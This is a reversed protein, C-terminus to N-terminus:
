EYGSDEWWAVIESVDDFGEVAFTLYRGHVVDIDAFRMRGDNDTLTGSTFNPSESGLDHEGVKMTATTPTADTEVKYVSIYEESEAEALNIVARTHLKSDITTGDDDSGGEQKVVGSGSGFLTRPTDLTRFQHFGCYADYDAEVWHDFQWNYILAKNPEDTASSNPYLIVAEQNEWDTYCYVHDVLSRKLENYFYDDIRQTGISQTGGGSFFHIGTNSVFLHGGRIQTVAKPAILGVNDGFRPIYFAPNGTDQLTTVYDKQYVGLLGRGIPMINLIPSNSFPMDVFSNTEVRNFDLVETFLMRSPRKGDVDDDVDWLLLRSNFALVGNANTVDRGSNGSADTSTDWTVSSFGTGVDDMVQPPESDHTNVAWIQTQFETVFWKDTTARTGVLSGIDTWGPDALDYMNATTFALTFTSGTEDIWDKVELVANTDGTDNFPTTFGARKEWKGSRFRVNNAESLEDQGILHPPFNKNLGGQMNQIFFKKIPM